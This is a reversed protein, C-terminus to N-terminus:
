EEELSLVSVESPKWDVELDKAIIRLIKEALKKSEESFDSLRVALNVKELTREVDSTKM